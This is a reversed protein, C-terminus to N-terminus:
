DMFKPTIKLAMDRMVRAFAAIEEETEGKMRM